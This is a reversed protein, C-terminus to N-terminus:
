HETDRIHSLSSTGDEGRGGGSQQQQQQTESHLQLQGKGGLGAGDGVAKILSANQLAMVHVKYGYM